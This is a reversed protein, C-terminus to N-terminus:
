PRFEQFPDRDDVWEGAAGCPGSGPVAVSNRDHCRLRRRVRM